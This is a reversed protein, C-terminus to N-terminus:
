AERIGNSAKFGNKNPTRHPKAWSPQPIQMWLSPKATVTATTLPIPAARPVSIGRTSRCWAIIKWVRPTSM